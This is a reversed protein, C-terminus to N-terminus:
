RSSQARVVVRSGVKLGFRRAASGRNVSIEVFGSSGELALPRGQRVEAYYRHYPLQRRGVVAEIHDEGLTERVMSLPINTIANGFRDVHLVRGGISSGQVLPVPTTMTQFDDVRPGLRNFAVGRAAHAGCPAFIDRGHFTHSVPEHHYRTRTLERVDVRDAEQLCPALVGNNPGVFTYTETRAVIARRTGGVGPDVVAVFVTGQPYYRYCALLTFAGTAISGVPIDHTIDVISADPAISCIVGKMSAVYWDRTGFDTMLAIVAM